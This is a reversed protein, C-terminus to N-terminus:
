YSCPVNLVTTRIDHVDTYLLNAVKQFAVETLYNGVCVGLVWGFVVTLRPKVRRHPQLSCDISSM